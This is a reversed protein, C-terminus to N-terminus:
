EQWTEIYSLNERCNKSFHEFIFNWLFGDLPLRATGHPRVSLCVSMAFNITAKECNQSHTESSLREHSGYYRLKRLSNWALWQSRGRVTVSPNVCCAVDGVERKATPFWSLTEFQCYPPNCHSENWHAHCKNAWTFQFSVPKRVLPTIIQLVFTFVCKYEQNSRFWNFIFDRTSVFRLWGNKRKYTM